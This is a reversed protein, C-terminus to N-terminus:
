KVPRLSPNINLKHSIVSPNIGPMDEHSWTFVDKNNRLFQILSERIQPPLDAGIKTIKELSGDELKITDLEESPKVLTKREQITM